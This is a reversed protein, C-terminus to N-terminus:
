GVNGTSSDQEQGLGSNDVKKSVKVADTQGQLEKGLGKGSSWGMKQMMKFGFSTRPGDQTSTWQQNLTDKKSDQILNQFAEAATTMKIEISESSNEM